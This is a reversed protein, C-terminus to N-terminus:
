SVHSGNVKLLFRIRIRATALKIAIHQIKRTTASPSNNFSVAPQFFRGNKIRLPKIQCFCSKLKGKRQTKQPLIKLIIITVPPQPKIPEARTAARLAL